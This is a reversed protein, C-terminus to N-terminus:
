ISELHTVYLTISALNVTVDYIGVPMEHYIYHFFKFLGLFPLTTLFVDSYTVFSFM